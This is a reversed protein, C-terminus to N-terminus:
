LLLQSDEQDLELNRRILDLTFNTDTPGTSLRVKDIGSMIKQTRPSIDEDSIEVLGLLLTTLEMETDHDQHLFSPREVSICELTKLAVEFSEPDSVYDKPNLQRLLDQVLTPASSNAFCNARIATEVLPWADADGQLSRTNVDLLFKQLGPHERSLKAASNHEILGKLVTFTSTPPRVEVLHDITAKWGNEFTDLHNQLSGLVSLLSVLHRSSPSMILRPVHDEVLTKISSETENDLLVPTLRLVIEVIAAASYAKGDESIITEIATIFIQRSPIVMPNVHTNSSNMSLTDALLTFWRHGMQIIQRQGQIHQDADESKAVLSQRIRQALTKSFETLHELLCKESAGLNTNPILLYYAEALASAPVSNEAELYGDFLYVIGDKVVENQDKVELLNKALIAAINFYSSWAQGHNQKPEGEIGKRLSLLFDLAHDPKLPLVKPPLRSALMQLSLWYRSPCGQSGKKVFRRLIDFSSSSKEKSVKFPGNWVDPHQVTLMELAQLLLLATMSQSERLASAIYGKGILELNAEVIAPQKELCAILMNCAAKRHSSDPSTAHSWIKKDESFFDEYKSQCTAIDESKLKLLLNTVLSLSSCQVRHFVEMSDDSATNREDSLTAPTEQIADRAYELIQVQGRRWFQTVKEDTDLFTEVSQQAVRSVLTEKDYCGALWTGIIRPIYKLM